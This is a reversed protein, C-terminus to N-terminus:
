EYMGKLAELALDKEILGRYDFMKKNLWEIQHANPIRVGNEIEIGPAIHGYEKKEEKTMSSLSRLYPRCYCVSMYGALETLKLQEDLFPCVEVLTRPENDTWRSADVKLRYPLRACLDKLLLREDEKTM